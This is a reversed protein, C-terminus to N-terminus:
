PVEEVKVIASPDNARIRAEHLPGRPTGVGEYEIYVRQSGDTYQLDPRNIGVRQGAATVQQQNVRIDSATAPLNALDTQLAANHSPRGVSRNTPLAVPPTPDVAIDQPLRVPEPASRYGDLRAITRALHAADDYTHALCRAVRGSSSHGQDVPTSDYVCIDAPGRTAVGDYVPDASSASAGLRLQGADLSTAVLLCVVVRLTIGVRRALFDTPITAFSM